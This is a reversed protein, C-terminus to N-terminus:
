KQQGLIVRGSYGRFCDDYVPFRNPTVVSEKILRRLRHNTEYGICRRDMLSAVSLVTGSGAFPSVVLDGSSTFQDLCRIVIEPHLADLFVLGRSDRRRTGGELLWVDPAFVATIKKAQTGSEASELKQFFQIYAFTYRYIDQKLSKAWIKTDACRYGASEAIKRIDSHKHWIIGDFRREGGNYRAHDRLDTNICVFTGGPKLVRYSECFIRYLFRLYDTKDLNSGEPNNTYPPSAIIIQATGTDVEPMRESSHFYVTGTKIHLRNMFNVNIELQKNLTGADYVGVDSNM